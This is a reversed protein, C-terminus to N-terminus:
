EDKTIYVTKAEAISHQIEVVVLLTYLHHIKDGVKIEMGDPVGQTQYCGYRDHFRIEREIM